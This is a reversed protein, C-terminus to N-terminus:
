WEERGVIPVGDVVVVVVVVVVRLRWEVGEGVAAAATPGEAHVGRETQHHRGM